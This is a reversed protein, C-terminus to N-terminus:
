KEILLYVDEVNKVEMDMEVKRGDGTKLVLHNFNLHGSKIANLYAQHKLKFNWEEYNIFDYFKQNAHLVKSYAGYKVICVVKDLNLADMYEQPIEINKENFFIKNIYDIDINTYILADYIKGNVSVLRVFSLTDLEIVFLNQKYGETLITEKEKVVNYSDYVKTLELVKNMDDYLASTDDINIYLSKDLLELDVKENKSFLLDLYKKM